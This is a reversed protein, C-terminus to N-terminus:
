EAGGDTQGARGAHQGHPARHRRRRRQQLLWACQRRGRQHDADPLFRVYGDNLWHTLSGAWKILWDILWDLSWPNSTVDLNRGYPIHLAELTSWERTFIFPRCIFFLYILYSFYVCVGLLSKMIWFFFFVSRLWYSDILMDSGMRNECSNWVWMRFFFQPELKNQCYKKCQFSKTSFYGELHSGTIKCASNFTSTELTVVVFWDILRLRTQLSCDVLSMEREDDNQWSGTVKANLGVMESGRASM